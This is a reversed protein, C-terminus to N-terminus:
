LYFIKSYIQMEGFIAEIKYTGNDDVWIHLEEKIEIRRLMRKRAGRKGGEQKTGFYEGIDKMRPNDIFYLDVSPLESIYLLLCTLRKLEKM